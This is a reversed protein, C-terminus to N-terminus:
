SVYPASRTAAAVILAGDVPMRTEAVGIVPYELVLEFAEAPPLPWLWLAMHLEIWDPGSEGGHRPRPYLVPPEPPAVGDEITRPVRRLTTATRM